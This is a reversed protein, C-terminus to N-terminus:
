ARVVRRILGLLEDITGSSDGEHICRTVCGEIHDQLLILTVEDAAHSLATLQQIIEPCYRDEEIMKQIGRAQGEIRKMRQLLAEKDKSYRYSDTDTAAQM